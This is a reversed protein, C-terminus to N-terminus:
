VPQMKLLNNTIKYSYMKCYGGLGPFLGYVCMERKELTIQLGQHEEHKKPRYMKLLRMCKIEAETETVSCSKSKTQVGSLKCNCSFLQVEAERVCQM